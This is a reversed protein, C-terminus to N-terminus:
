GRDMSPDGADERYAAARRAALTTASAPRSATVPHEPPESSCCALPDDDEPDGEGVSDAAGEGDALSTLACSAAAGFFGCGGFAAFV